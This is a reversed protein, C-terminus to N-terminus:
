VTPEVPLFFVGRRPLESGAQWLMPRRAMDIPKGTALDVVATSGVNIEVKRAVVARLLVTEERGLASRICVSDFPRGEESRLPLILGLKALVRISRRVTERCVDLSRALASLDLVRSKHKALLVLAFWVKWLVATRRTRTFTEFVLEVV